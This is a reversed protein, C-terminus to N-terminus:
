TGSAEVVAASCGGLAKQCNLHQATYEAHGDTVDAHFMAPAHSALVKEGCRPCKLGRYPNGAIAGRRPSKTSKPPKETGALIARYQELSVRENETM